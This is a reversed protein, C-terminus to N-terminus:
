CKVLCCFKLGTWISLMQVSCFLHSEFISILSLFPLFHPFPLFHQNGANGSKGVINEFTKKNLTM